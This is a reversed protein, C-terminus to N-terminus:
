YASEQAWAAVLLPPPIDVTEIQGVEGHLSVSSGCHISKLRPIGLHCVKFWKPHQVKLSARSRVYIEAMRWFKLVRRSELYMQVEINEIDWYRMSLYIEINWIKIYFTNMTQSEPMNTAQFIELVNTSEVTWSRRRKLVEWCALMELM